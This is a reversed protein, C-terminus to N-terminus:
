GGWSIPRLITSWAQRGTTGPPAALLRRACRLRERWLLARWGPLAAHRAHFRSLLTWYDRVLTAIEAAAPAPDGGAFLRRLQPLRQASLVNGLGADVLAQRSVHDHNALQETRNRSSVANPRQRYVTLRRAINRAKTVHLMRRWLDYDQTTCFGADYGGAQAYVEARFMVSSHVFPNDLLSHWRIELDTPPMRRARHHRGADDIVDCSSGVLGLASDASFAAVQKELRHPMSLDDADQRAILAARAAKMGVILSRTLGQRTANRVIRVRKDRIDRLIAATGDTSADDVLVLEFAAFTQGLVSGVAASVYAEENHAAMLVTVAPQRATIMVGTEM